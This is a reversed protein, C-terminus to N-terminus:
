ERGVPVASNSPKIPKANTERIRWRNEGPVKLMCKVDGFFDRFALSYGQQNIIFNKWNGGAGDMMISSNAELRQQFKTLGLTQFIEDDTMEPTIKEFNAGLSQLVDLPVAPVRRAADESDRQRSPNSEPSEISKLKAVCSKLQSELEAVRKELETVRNKLESSGETDSQRAFLAVQTGCCVLFIALSLFHKM